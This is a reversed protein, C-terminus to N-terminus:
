NNGSQWDMGTKGMSYLNPGEQSHYDPKKNVFHDSEHFHLRRTKDQVFKEFTLSNEM